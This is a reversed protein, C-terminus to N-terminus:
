IKGNSLGNLQRCMVHEIVTVWVVFAGGCGSPQGHDNNPTIMAVRNSTALGETGCRATTAIVQDMLDNGLFHSPNEGEGTISVSPRIKMSCATPLTM